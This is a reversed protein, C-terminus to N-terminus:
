SGSRDDAKEDVKLQDVVNRVGKVQRAARVASFEEWQSAVRGTLQVVGNKVDMEINKWERRDKFVLKLAGALDEDKSEVLEKENSPVVELENQVKAVGKVRSAQAAAARKVEDTPVVGFLTVINDETDVNIEMSPIESATLLRMKVAM